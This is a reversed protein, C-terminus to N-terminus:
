RTFDAKRLVAPGKGQKAAAIVQEWHELIANVVLVNMQVPDPLKMTMAGLTLAVTGHSAALLTATLFRDLGRSLRVERSAFFARVNDNFVIFAKRAIYSEGFLKGDPMRRDEVTGAMSFLSKFHDPNASWYGNYFRFMAQLRAKPDGTSAAIGVLQEVVVTFTEQKVHILLAIKSSFYQYLTGQSYGALAAIKRMSVDESSRLAFERRAVEVFKQRVQAKDDAHRARNQFRRKPGQRERGTRAVPKDQANM